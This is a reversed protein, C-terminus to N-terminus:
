NISIPTAVHAEFEGHNMTAAAQLGLWWRSPDRPYPNGRKSILAGARTVAVGEKARSLMVLVRQDELLEKDSACRFDPVHGEELGHVFVWDFQQGKGTHANLLHVGPTVAQDTDDRLYRRIASRVTESGHRAMEIEAVAEEVDSRADVDNADLDSLAKARLDAFSANRPLANGARELREIIDQDDVALDWHRCPLDPLAAFAANIPKRRYGSRAIVGITAEPSREVIDACRAAIWAAEGAGTQFAVAVSAGGDPWADPLGSELMAAGLPIGAINLMTLVAPSSRYSKTLRYPEGCLKTLVAEVAAPEAGAWGYIGQLPDGVFTRNTLCSRLAM